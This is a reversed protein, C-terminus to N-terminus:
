GVPSTRSSGIPSEGITTKLKQFMLGCQVCLTGLAFLLLGAIFPVRTIFSQMKRLFITDGTQVVTGLETSTANAHEILKDAIRAINAEVPEPHLGFQVVILIALVLLFLGGVVALTAHLGARKRIQDERLSFCTQIMRNM